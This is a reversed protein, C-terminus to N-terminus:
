GSTVVVGELVFAATGAIGVRDGRATLTLEGQRKSVQRARLRQKGLREAWYPTLTTHIAGTVPDEPIGFAPAFFRSVFDVDADEGTGPATVAVVGPPLAEIRRLDPVLGRVTAADDFLAYIVGSQLSAARLAGSPQAGLSEALRDPIDIEVPPRAPFDLELTAGSRSVPLPGSRSAFVVWELEPRLRAFVVAASALTAHGCLDVELAPTFWRIQYDCGDSGAVPVFFATEAQNMEAAIAQMVEDPLWADLPCVGAPNGRFPAAAFADVLYIPVKM